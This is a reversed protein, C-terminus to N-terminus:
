TGFLQLPKTLLSFATLIIIVDMEEGHNFAELDKAELIARAPEWVGLGHFAPYAILVVGRLIDLHDLLVKETLSIKKAVNDKYIVLKAETVHKLMMKTMEDDLVWGTRYNTKEEVQKTGVKPPLKDLGQKM